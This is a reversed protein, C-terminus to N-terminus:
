EHRQRGDMDDIAPEGVYACWAQDVLVILPRELGGTDREGRPVEQCGDEEDKTGKTVRGSERSLAQLM